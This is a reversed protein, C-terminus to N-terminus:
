IAAEESVVRRRSRRAVAYLGLGSVIWVALSLISAELSIIETCQAERQAPGLTLSTTAPIRRWAEGEGTQELVWCAPERGVLHVSFAGAGAALVVLGLVMALGARGIGLGATTRLGGFLLLLAAPLFVFAVVSVFSLLFALIGSGMWIGAQLVPPMRLAAVAFVFPLVFVLALTIGGFLNSEPPRANVVLIWVGLGVGFVLGWLAGIKGATSTRNV